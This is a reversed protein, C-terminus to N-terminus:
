SIPLCPSWDKMAISYRSPSVKFCRMPLRGIAAIHERAKRPKRNPQQEGAHRSTSQAAEVVAFLLQGFLIFAYLLQVTAGIM